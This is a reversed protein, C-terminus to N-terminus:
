ADARRAPRQPTRRLSRARHTPRAGASRARRLHEELVSRLVV